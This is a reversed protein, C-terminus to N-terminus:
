SPPSFRDRKLAALTKDLHRVARATPYRDLLRRIERMAHGPDDLHHEYVRILALGIRIDDRRSLTHRERFEELEIRAKQAVGLPGALLAARRAQAEADGEAARAAYEAAAATFEDRAVLAEIQSYGVRHRGLGVSHVAREAFALAPDLLNDLIAHTLGYLSWLAGVVLLADTTIGTAWLAVAVLTGFILLFRAAYRILDFPDM